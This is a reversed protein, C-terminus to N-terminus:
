LLYLVFSAIYMGWRFILAGGGMVTMAGFAIFSFKLARKTNEQDQKKQKEDVEQQTAGETGEKVKAALLDQALKSAASSSSDDTVATTKVTCYHGLQPVGYKWKMYSKKILAYNTASFYSSKRIQKHSYKNINSLSLNSHLKPLLHRYCYGLM